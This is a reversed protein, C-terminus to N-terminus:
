NKRCKPHGRACHTPTLGLGPPSAAHSTAVARCEREQDPAMPRVASRRRVHVPQDDPHGPVPAAHGFDSLYGSGGFVLLIGLLRPLFGSKFVLVGLPLLWAGWFVQTVLIGSRYRDLFLMVQAHLQPATFAGDDAGSLLRLVTLHNVENLCAMPIGLLALVVMLTAHDQNVPKLLRHLVLVLLVVIVQSVLHSITASRFLLDSAMINRSTAAPDGPVLRASPVYSFSFAGLPVLSLYLGGALRATRNISAQAGTTM